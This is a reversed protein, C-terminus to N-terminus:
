LSGETRCYRISGKRGWEEGDFAVFVISRSPNHTEKLLRAVDLLVAVGSANDDAGPHIKGEQGARVDPWGRGLHDYHAGVVVSEASWEEKAGPLIGVVNRLTLPGDPPTAM